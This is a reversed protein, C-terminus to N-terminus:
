HNLDCLYKFKQEEQSKLYPNKSCSKTHNLFQDPFELQGCEYMCQLKIELPSAPSYSWTESCRNPCKVNGQAKWKTACYKCFTSKCTACKVPEVKIDLCINCLHNEEDLNFGPAILKWLEVKRKM